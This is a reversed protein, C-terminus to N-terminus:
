KRFLDRAWYVFVMHSGQIDTGLQKWIPAFKICHGCWHNYFEVMWSSESNQVMQVFNSADLIVIDDNNSYLPEDSGLVSFFLMFVILFGALAEYVDSAM